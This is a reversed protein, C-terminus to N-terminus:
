TGGRAMHRRLRRGESGDADGRRVALVRSGHQSHIRLAALGCWLPEWMEREREAHLM